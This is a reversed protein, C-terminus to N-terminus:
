GGKAEQLKKQAEIMEDFMGSQHMMYGGVAGLIVGMVGLIIFFILTKLIIQALDLQYMRKLCFAFYILQTPLLLMSFIVLSFGLPLLIITLIATIISFQAQTYMFIVVLETYNYLKNKFFIVRAMLAYLPIYFMMILSQYDGIFEFLKTNFANQQEAIISNEQTFMEMSEPFKQIIYIQLGSLTIAIAFYSIVNVYQKRTGHIYGGIVAEPKKFLTIFTQLFKNDYDFYQESIDAGLNKITLRNRIIKAGCNNCYDSSDLLQHQCNKCTM